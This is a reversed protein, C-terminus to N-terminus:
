QVLRITVETGKDLSSSVDFSGNLLNLFDTIIYYGLQNGTENDPKQLSQNGVNLKIKDIEDLTIKNMGIGTDSVTICYKNDRLKGIFQIKGKDSYKIANSLLNQLVIMLINRDSIILDEEPVLNEIHIGKIEAMGRLPETLEEIFDHLAIHDIKPTIRNNQFKMWNLINSANNYLKDSAFEIDNMSEILKNRDIMNPNRKSIRSVMSIFKLPTIIDHSIVSILRNKVNISERLFQEKQALEDFNIELKHNAQKLEFTRETIKQELAINKKTIRRSNLKLLFYFVATSGLLCFLIFWATEYYKKEVTFNFKTENFKNSELGTLKRVKFTYRGSTLNSFSVTNVGMPLAIWGKNLGELKYELNLNLPNGWYPASFSLRVSEHNSPISISNLNASTEDIYLGDIVITEDPYEDQIDEPKLFVLGEMTPYTVYGTTLRLVSPSCGGNFESNLIGDDEGYVQYTFKYTSDAIYKEINSYKTNLLGKNTSMWLRGLEDVFFSHVHSLYNGNDNPLKLTRGKNWVYFGDGYTGIFINSQYTFLVRACIGQLGPVEIAECTYINQIKVGSCSSVWMNGDPGRTLDEIRSESNSFDYNCLHKYKGSKIYGIGHSGGVIMSDGDQFIKYYSKDIGDTIKITSGTKLNYSVITDGRGYWINELSDKLLFEHSVNRLPVSLVRSEEYTFERNQWTMVVGSDIEVLSYYSNNSTNAPNNYVVSKMKNKKFIYLGKTETGIFLNQSKSDFIVGTVTANRPMSSTILKIQLNNGSSDSILEYLNVDKKFHVQPFDPNWFISRTFKFNKPNFESLDGSTKVPYITNNVIDFRFFENKENVFYIRGNLPFSTTITRGETSIQGTVNGNVFVRLCNRLVVAYSNDSLPITQLVGEIIEFNGIGQFSKSINKTLFSLNPVSGKVTVSPQTSRDGKQVIYIGGNKIEFVNGAQEYTYCNGDMSKVVTAFRDNMIAPENYHTYVKFYQGDFRVLGGETTMWLFRNNDLVMSRISNQPLGNKSTYHKITFDDSSQGFAFQTLLFLCLLFVVNRLRM